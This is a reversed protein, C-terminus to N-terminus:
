AGTAATDKASSSLSAGDADELLCLVTRDGDDWTFASPYFFSFSFADSTGGVYADQLHGCRAEARGVLVDDGPYPGDVLTTTGVVEGAHPRDCPIVPLTLSDETGTDSVCDGVALDSMAVESPQVVRGKADREPGQELGAVAWGGLGLTTAVAVGVL